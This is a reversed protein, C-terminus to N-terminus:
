RLGSARSSNGLRRGAEARSEGDPYEQSPCAASASGLVRMGLTAFGNGATKVAGSHEGGKGSNKLQFLWPSPPDTWVELGHISGLSCFQHSSFTHQCLPSLSAGGGRGEPFQLDEM